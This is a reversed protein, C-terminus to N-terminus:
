EVKLTISSATESTVSYLDYIDPLEEKLKKSDLTTRSSAKRISASFGDLIINSKGVKEMAEKLEQKFEKEKLDMELQIKKFEKYKEIWEKNIVIENNEIKILENM